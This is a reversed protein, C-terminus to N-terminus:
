ANQKRSFIPLIIKDRLQKLNGVDRRGTIRECELAAVGSVHEYGGIAASFSGDRNLEVIRKFRKRDDLAIHFGRLADLRHPIYGDAFVFQRHFARRTNM